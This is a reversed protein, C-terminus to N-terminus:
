TSWPVVPTDSTLAPAYLSPPRPSPHGFDGLDFAACGHGLPSRTGRPTPVTPRPNSIPSVKRLGPGRERVVQPNPRNPHPDHPQPQSKPDPFLSTLKLAACRPGLSSQVYHPAAASLNPPRIRPRPAPVHSRRSSSGSPDPSSTDSTSLQVGLCHDWATLVAPQSKPTLPPRSSVAPRHTLEAERDPAPSWRRARFLIFAARERPQLRRLTACSKRTPLQSRGGGVGPERLRRERGQARKRGRRRRTDEYRPRQTPRRSRSTDHKYRPHFDSEHASKPKTTGRKKGEAQTYSANEDIGGQERGALGGLDRPGRGSPAQSGQEAGRTDQRSPPLLASSPWQGCPARRQPKETELRSPSSSVRRKLKRFQERASPARAPWKSAERGSQLARGEGHSASQVKGLDRERGAGKPLVRLVIKGGGQSEKGWKRGPGLARAVPGCRASPAGWWKSKQQLNLVFLHVQVKGPARQTTSSRHFKPARPQWGRKGPLLLFWDREGRHYTQPLQAARGAGLPKRTSLAPLGSEGEAHTPLASHGYDVPECRSTWQPLHTYTPRAALKHM